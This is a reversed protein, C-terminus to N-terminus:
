VTMSAFDRETIEERGSLIADIAASRVLHALAAAWGGTRDHLVPALRVLSGPEHQQLRLSEDLAGVLREWDAGYPVPAPRVHTLRTQGAGHSPASSDEESDPGAYAFLAPVQDALFHLTEVPCPKQPISADLIADDVLVLSAESAILAELVAESAAATSTRRPCPPLGVLKGLRLLATRSSDAPHLRLYVPPGASIGDVAMQSFCRGLEQLATTKGSRPPGTILLGQRGGTPTRNLIALRAGLHLVDQLFPTRLPPLQAHYSLRERVSGLVSPEQAPVHPLHRRRTGTSMRDRSWPALLRGSDMALPVQLWAEASTHVWVQRLDYPDYRVEMPGTVRLSALEVHFYHRGKVCVGKETVQRTVSPLLRRVVDGGLPLHAWGLRAVCAEYASSPTEHRHGGLAQLGWQPQHQWVSEVWQEARNQLWGIFSIDDHSPDGGLTTLETSFLSVLRSAIREAAAKTTPSRRETRIGMARCGALFERGRRMRLSDFVLSEPMILPVAGHEDAGGQEPRPAPPGCLRALLTPGDVGDRSPHVMLTCIMLTLEDVAVTVRVSRLSRRALRGPLALEFTDIHVREGPRSLKFGNEDVATIGLAGGHQARVSKVLRQFTSRSPLPVTGSGYFAELMRGVAQRYGEASETHGRQVDDSVLMLLTELVRPDQRAGPAQQRVARGDVLGEIGQAQYRQRRRRVTRASVCAVGKATLEAAKAAERESLSHVAPDYASRPMVDPASGVPVGSIVETIHQEWWRAEDLIGETTPLDRIPPVRSGRERVEFDASLALEAVAPCAIDGLPDTLHVLGDAFGAVVWVRGEFRVQDGLGLRPPWSVDM